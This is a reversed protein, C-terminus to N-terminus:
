ALYCNFLVPQRPQEASATTTTLLREDQRLNAQTNSEANDRSSDPLHVKGM